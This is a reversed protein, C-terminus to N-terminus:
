RNIYEILKKIKITNELDIKILHIIIYKLIVFM